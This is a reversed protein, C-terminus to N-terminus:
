LLGVVLGDKGGFKLIVSSVLKVIECEDRSKTCWLYCNM